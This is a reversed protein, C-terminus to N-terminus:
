ESYARYTKQLKWPRLQYLAMLRVLVKEPLSIKSLYKEIFIPGDTSELNHQWSMALGRSFLRHCFWRLDLFNSQLYYANVVAHRTRRSDAVEGDQHTIHNRTHILQMTLAKNLFYGQGILMAAYVLYRDVANGLITPLPFINELVSHTFCLGSTSPAYFHLHGQKLGRRFDCKQSVDEKSNPFVKSTMYPKNDGERILKLPHFCWSIDPNKTFIEVLEEVKNPEFWDDSDLLAVIDGQSVEFGANMASPQGGNDKLVAVVQDGYSAIIDRSDDTSGDDVVIVEVSRYTQALASDIAKRLFAGYNYNNIIISVCLKSTMPLVM